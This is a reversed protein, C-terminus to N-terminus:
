RRRRRFCVGLLGFLLLMMRSPEPILIVLSVSGNTTFSSTDWSLSFGSVNPLILDTGVNFVGPNVTGWSDFLAWTNGAVPTYGGLFGTVDVIGALTLVGLGSSNKVQDYVSSPDGIQFYSAPTGALTLDGDFNLIGMDAGASDGPRLIGNVTANGLITGTGALTGGGQVTTDGLGTQGAGAYGVQLTGNMIVTQGYNNATNELVAVGLGTKTLNGAGTVTSAINLTTGADTEITGGAAGLTVGRNSDDLAFSATTRLKGGDLTLQDATAAGPNLGLATESGVIIGGLTVVTKGAYTNVTSGLNLDGTGTKNLDGPGTIVNALTLTTGGNTNFTGGSSGLTVGRNSDDISMTATTNLTGGDLTLQGATFAGPNSGLSAEDGIRLTGGTVSTTGDYTNTGSLEQTSTGDKVLSGGSGSIVGAFTTAGGTKGITLANGGLTVTSSAAGTLSAVSQGVGLTLNSSGSGIDDLTLDTRGFATPLADAVNANIIGGNRIYTPGNYSNATNLNVTAGSVVLDSNPTGTNGTIGNTNINIIGGGTLTLVTGTKDVGGNLNLTGGGANVTADSGLTIPGAFSSTGNNQLAGGGGVGTGNLNLPEANTYNVNNLRLSSGSNVTTGSSDAGLAGNGGVDFTTGGQVTTTGSYTSNGTLALTGGGTGTLNFAGGIAGGITLTGASVTVVRSADLTVAGNGLNLDNSGIFTFDANINLPNSNTLSVASGSTNDISGGNITFAGTGLASAHNLALTGDSLVTGGSHTNAGSLTLSGTGQKVLVRGSDASSVAGSVLTNGTGQVTFTVANVELATDITLPTLSTSNNILRSTVISTGGTSYTGIQTVGAGAFTANTDFISDAAAFYDMRFVGATMDNTITHSGGTQISAGNVTLNNSGGVAFSGSVFMDNAIGGALDIGAELIGGSAILDGTSGLASAHGLVLTGANLRTPGNYTNANSLTVIGGGIVLDSSAPAGVITGTVNIGSAGGLLTLTTGAKTITGSLTLLGTGLNQITDSGNGLANINKGFTAAAGTYAFTGSSVGAVGLDLDTHTGLPQSATATADVASVALPGSAITTKGSYTNANSLLLAGAGAKTLGGTGSVLASVDLDVLSGTSDAITFTRTSAGLDLNGTIVPATTPNGTANTSVDGGLTLIGTGTQVIAASSATQGTGGFVLGGVTGNLNNLDLTATTSAASANVTVVSTSAIASSVGYRVVGNNITTTGDYTNAASLLLTGAGAKVIGVGTGSILAQVDLDSAVATNDAITFTRSAGGLALNGSIVPATTPNGTANTTVNGGLTLTGAGTQVIAVSTATQSTGGITLSAVTGGFGNLDLVATVGAANPNVTVASASNIADNVGYRVVGNNVTTAGTYTNASSLLLTGAGSKTIGFGAGSIVAQADLDVDTGTSNAVSFTRTSGLAVNGSLLAPTTWNGTATVTVTGGLTLTGSGTTVQNVSTATGGTGGFTLAAITDNFGNLNLVASSGSTNNVTITGTNPLVNAAGSRIEGTNITTGGSYTNAGGLQMTGAGGKTLSFAGSLVAQADLDVVTGTSDGITFTRNAGLAVNGSLLAPTTFNGTASVTVTGGLTLTGLGTTVQNVSGALGGTGGFTLAAISDSNGNLDLLATGATTANVTVTGTDPIVGSAGTRLTGANVATGGTYTNGTNSLTLVGTGSKALVGAGTGGNVVTGTIDTDGTGSITLTRATNSESLNVTNSLIVKSGSSLNNTLTRSSANNTFAGAFTLNQSGTVTIAGGLLTANSLSRGANLPTLTGATLTLTGSALGGNSASDFQITGTTLTTGGASSNAGQLVLTAAAANVTTTGSYTNAGSFTTVGTSTITVSNAFANGDAMNGSVTTAGTGALTLIRAATNASAGVDVGGSITLVAPGTISSTLTRDADNGTGTFTGSLTLNNTGSVTLGANLTVANAVPGSGGASLNVGAQLTSAGTITLSGTSLANKHGLILIGENLTTNGVFSGAANIALRSSTVAWSGAESNIALNGTGSIGTTTISVLSDADGGETSISADGNLVVGGTLNLTSAADLNFRVISGADLNVAGDQNLTYNAANAGTNDVSFEGVAGAAYNLTGARDLTNGDTNRFIVRGYQNFYIDGDYGATSSVVVTGRTLNLDGSWTNGNNTLSLTGTEANGATLTDVSDLTLSGTGSVIGNLTTSRATTSTVASNSDRLNVFSNGSVSITGTTTAYFQSNGGASLTGGNLILNGPVPASSTTAAANNYYFAGGTMAVNAANGNAVSGLAGLNTMELTGASVTFDTTLGTNFSSDAAATLLVKGAGSKTVDAEGQLGGSLTLVAASDAVNWTQPTGVKLATAITVAPPGGATIAIGDTSVQPAIELRATPLAGPNLTVSAPTDGSTTSAEFVLSNIKFNQELTTTIAAGGTINDAIFVVDTGQGPISTAVATGPKGEDPGTLPDDPSWNAIDNWNDLTGGANWYSKGTILTGTTLQVLNDSVFWTMSAFGGPTAGQIVNGTGFATFGGDVLNLLTYTTSPALGADTMNITITNGLNKTGGTLLTIIDTAGTGVNLNLTATGSGTNGLSLTNLDLASGAGDLLSLTAGAAVEISTIAAPTTLGGALALASGANVVSLASTGNVPSAITLSGGTVGTVGQHTLTYGTPITASATGAKYISLAGAGSDTITYTGTNGFTVAADNAGFTLSASSGSTNDIVATGDTNMSLANIVQTTGNLDLTATDSAALEPSLTVGGAGAASSIVSNATLKLTGRDVDINAGAQNFNNSSSGGLNLTGNGTKSIVLGFATSTTFNGNIVTEGSGDISWTRNATLSNATVGSFTLSKGSAVNNSLVAATTSNQQQVLPSSFAVSYDGIFGVSTASSFQVPNAITRDAGYAFFSGAGLQLTGTGLAANDGIGLAGAGVTTVGTYNNAPNTLIWTAGGDVTVALAGSNDSLQSTIMNGASNTGRLSLTKAGAVMDNAVNSLVLAGAGDAHIQTTGTTTNLRIKRDSTEGPGIYQLIGAGTGSNGLTIANTNANASTSTGVSTGLGPSSSSGLSNVALTGQYVSTEGSYTNLGNLELIGTGLKRIGTGANGSIIGSITAFDTGTNANDDVRIPRLANADVTAAVGTQGTGVNSSITVQTASNISVIYAGSPISAGSITQGVTLGATTGATFNVTSSNSTTNVTLAAAAGAATGLSFSGALDVESLAISGTAGQARAQSGNLMLGDRTDIFGATSGWIPTGSWNVTLKSDGGLFGGSFQATNAAPALFQMEGAATGINRTFTGQSYLTGGDFKLNSNSSLGQGNTAILIGQTLTTAGSYTNSSAGLKWVGTGTKTVSTINAGTGSDTIQPTLTNDGQSTGTLTILQPGVVGHVIAGTSSWVIANNNSATSSLTVGTGSLTFLRNTSASRSGYTLLSDTVSGQYILGGTSGNFVLNSAANTSAGIGSNVGGDALTDVTVLGTSGITTVGTYSNSGLWSQAGTGIKTLNVAGSVVGYSTGTGNGGGVTLTAAGASTVTGNNNFAGTTNAPTIGNLNLAAGQRITLAAAAAGLTGTGSMQVTGENITFTGTNANTANLVLTGAGSKTVGGSTGSTLPSSLTLQDGGGNVRIILAGSGGTAIGTGGTITSAGGTALIGGDTGAAGTRVTLTTGAGLTLTQAGSIKLTSITTSAGMTFSGTIENNSTATLATASTVFGADTGYVPARLVGASSYAFNGGGFHFHPAVLGTAAGTLTVTNSADSGTVNITGGDGITPNLSAFALSATGSAGPTLKITNAGQTLTLQGLNEVNSTSAQGVFELTAGAYVNSANFTVASADAVITSAAANAKLKLTGNALTTAGIYANSGALVWTGGGIKVLGGTGSAPDAPIASNIVNEVTSTGGLILSGTTSNPKTITGDIIVPSAGTQNAYISNSASTTNLVISKTSTLGAGTAATATGIILNGATTTANGLTLTSSNNTISRFDTIQLSGQVSVAGDLTSGTSSITLLGSGTKTLRHDFSASSATVNGSILTNGNGGITMLHSASDETNSWFAGTFTLTGGLNNTFANDDGGGQVPTAAFTVGYGNRSNFTYTETEEIAFAGFTATGNIASGGISHDVFFTSSNRGYVNAASGGALLSPTDMRVELIGANVDLVSSTTTSTRTGLVGPSTIRVSSQGSAASSSVRISGSFGASSSPNLILTGTGTKELVSDGTLAGTLNYSGVGAQNAAGGLVNVISGTSGIAVVTDSDLSGSLTLMGTASTLRTPVGTGLYPVGMSVAGSLTNDGVSVLAAGRDSIPGQGQLSLNRSISVGASTGDLVLSGGGYGRLATAAPVPNFGTVMITSSSSGLATANTIVVSGGSITTTGTYTNGAALRLTGGGTKTLAAGGVIQSEINATEGMNVRITPTAGALTLDGGTLKYGNSTFSLGNATLGSALTVTGATGGFVALDTNLNPWPILSTLDWWTQNLINTDWTGTGGLGAGSTSNGLTSGDADWYYTAANTRIPLTGFPVIVLATFVGLFRTLPSLRNPRHM